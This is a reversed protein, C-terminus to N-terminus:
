KLSDRFASLATDVTSDIECDKAVIRCGARELSPDDVVDFGAKGALLDVSSDRRDKPNVFLTANKAGDASEIADTYLSDLIAPNAAATHGVIKRAMHVALDIIENKADQRISAAAQRARVLTEAAVAAEKSIGIPKSKLDRYKIVRGM